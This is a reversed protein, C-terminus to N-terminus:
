GRYNRVVEEVSGAIVYDYSTEDKDMFLKFALQHVRDAEVLLIKVREM